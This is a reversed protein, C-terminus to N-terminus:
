QPISNPPPAVPPVTDLQICASLDFFFFAFAKEAASFPSSCGMPYTMDVFDSQNVHADLHVAKGCQQAVPKGVPTNVTMFRPHPTSSGDFNGTGTAWVQTTATNAASINDFVVGLDITGYPQGPYQGALWDALAKGKPFSTVLTVNGDTTPAGGPITAASALNTDPSDKWVTYMFDTGFIRGGADLYQTMAAFSTADKTGSGYPSGATDAGDVISETGECSFILMDYGMMTSASNWLSQAPQIGPPGGGGGGAFLTVATTGSVGFEASDIGLKPLMCAIEDAGGTTVGIRPMDGETTNKPLRTLGPDTLPNDVCAKVSPLVVSRRWKGVQVVLPVNSGTPPDVLKFHGNADSLATATAKVAGLAGCTECSAGKQLTPLPGSPTYVIVNYLPMTGNPAFVTGSITTHGGNPCAPAHPAMADGSTSADSEFRGGTGAETGGASPTSADQDGGDEDVAWTQQPPSSCAIVVISLFPLAAFCKFARVTV